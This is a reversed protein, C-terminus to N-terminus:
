ILTLRTLVYVQRVKGGSELMKFLNESTNPGNRYSISRPNLGAVQMCWSVAEAGCANNYSSTAGGDFDLDGGITETVFDSYEDTEERVRCLYLPEAPFNAEYSRDPAFLGTTSNKSHTVHTFILFVLGKAGNHTRRANQCMECRCGNGFNVCPIGINGFVNTHTSRANRCQQCNCGNNIDKCPIGVKGAM